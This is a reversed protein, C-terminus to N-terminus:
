LFTTFAAASKLLITTTIEFIYPLTELNKYFIITSTLNYDKEFLDMLKVDGM